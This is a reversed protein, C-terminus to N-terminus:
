EDDYEDDTSDNIKDRYSEFRRSATRGMQRALVESDGRMEAEMDFAQSVRQRLLVQSLKEMNKMAEAYLEPSEEESLGLYKQMIKDMRSRDLSKHSLIEHLLKSEIEQEIKQSNKSDKESIKGTVRSNGNTKSDSLIRRITQTLEEKAKNIQSKTSGYRRSAARAAAAAPTFFSDLSDREDVLQEANSLKELDPLERKLRRLKREKDTSFKGGNNGKEAELEGIKQRTEVYRETYSKGGHNISNSEQKKRFEDISGLGADKVAKLAPDDGNASKAEYRASAEEYEMRDLEANDYAVNKALAGEGSDLFADVGERMASGEVYATFPGDGSTLAAIAAMGGLAKGIQKRSKKSLYNVAKGGFSDKFKKRGENIKKKFGTIRKKRETPAKTRTSTKSSSKSTSTAGSSAKKPLLNSAKGALDQAFKSNKLLAADHPIAKLATKSADKAMNFTKRTQSGINKANRVAMIGMAMGAGMSVGQIENSFGFIKAIVKEAQKIFILSIIVLASTALLNYDASGLFTNKLTDGLGAASSLDGNLIPSILEFATNTFTLYMICHFPQILITYLFQKLWTILAQAKNDKMKDISYTITILPSIILLFAIKIVRNIYSIFFAITMFIMAVYIISATMGPIGVGVAALIAIKNYVDKITSLGGNSGSIVSSSLIELGHVIANNLYIIFIAMYQIVYILILSIFWDVLMKKYKAKDSAVTSLAMRIGVYVLIVLLVVTAINRMVYYWRAVNERIAYPISDSDINLDFFNIDLLKYKNFFIDYATINHLIGNGGGGETNALNYVLLDIFFAAATMLLKPVIVIISVIGGALGTIGNLIEPTMPTAAHSINTGFIFNSLIAIVIFLILIKKLQKVM